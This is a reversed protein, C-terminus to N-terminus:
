DQLVLLGVLSQLSVHRLLLCDESRVSLMLIHAARLANVNGANLGLRVLVHGLLM